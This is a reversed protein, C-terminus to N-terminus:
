ASQRGAVDAAVRQFRLRRTDFLEKRHAACRADDLLDKRNAAARAEDLAASQKTEAATLAADRAPTDYTGQMTVVIVLALGLVCRWVTASGYNAGTVMQSILTNRERPQM